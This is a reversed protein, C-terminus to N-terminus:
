LEFRPDSLYDKNVYLMNDIKSTLEKNVNITKMKWNNNDDVMWIDFVKDPRSKFLVTLVIGKKVKNNAQLLIFKGPLYGNNVLYVLNILEIDGSKVAVAKELVTVEAEKPIKKEISFENFIKRVTKVDDNQTSLQYNKVVEDNVKWVPLAGQPANTGTETQDSKSEEKDSTKDNGCSALISLSLALVAIYKKM